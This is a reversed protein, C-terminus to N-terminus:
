LPMRRNSSDAATGATEADGLSSMTFLTQGERVGLKATDLSKAFRDRPADPQAWNRFVSSAEEVAQQAIEGQRWRAHV